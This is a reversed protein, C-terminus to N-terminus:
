HREVHRTVGQVLAGIESVFQLALFSAPIPMVTILEDHISALLTPLSRNVSQDLSVEDGSVLHQGRQQALVTLSTLHLLELEDDLSDVGARLRELMEHVHELVGVASRVAHEFQATKDSTEITM